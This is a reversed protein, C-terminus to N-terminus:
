LVFMRLQAYFSEIIKGNIPAENMYDDGESITETDTSSSSSYTRILRNRIYPQPRVKALKHCLCRMQRSSLRVGLQDYICKRVFSQSLLSDPLTLKSTDTVTDTLIVLVRKFEEANFIAREPRASRQEKKPMEYESDTARRRFEHMMRHIANLLESTTVIGDGLCMLVFHYWLHTGNADFVDFLSNAELVSLHLNLESRM